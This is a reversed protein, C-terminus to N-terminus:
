YTRVSGRTPYPIMATSRLRLAVTSAVESVLRDGARITLPKGSVFYGGVLGVPGLVIAGGATAAAAKGSKEGAVYSGKSRPQLPLLTGFTSRVPDLALRLTANVGFRKRQEVRSVIGLVPVDRRLVTFGGVRVDRAVRLRVRDGVRATRSSLNQDFILPIETGQAVVLRTTQPVVRRPRQAAAPVTLSALVALVLLGVFGQLKM